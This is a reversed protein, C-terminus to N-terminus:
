ALVIKGVKGQDIGDNDRTRQFRGGDDGGARLGVDDEGGAKWRGGDDWGARSIGDDDGGARFVCTHRNFRMKVCAFIRTTERVVASATKRRRWNPM